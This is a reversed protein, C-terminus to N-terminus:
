KLLGTKVEISLSSRFFSSAKIQVEDLVPGVGWGGEGWIKPDKKQIKQSVKGFTLFKSSKTGKTCGLEGWIKAFTDLFKQIQDFGLGFWFTDWITKNGKSDGGEGKYVFDM